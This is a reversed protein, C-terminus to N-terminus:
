FQPLRDNLSGLWEALVPALEDGFATDVGIYRLGVLVLAVFSCAVGLPALASGAINPRSTTALGIFAVVLGVAGTGLALGHMVSFPAALVSFLGLLLGIEAAASTHVQYDPSAEFLATLGDDRPAVGGTAM